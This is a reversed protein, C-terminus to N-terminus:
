EVLRLVKVMTGGTKSPAGVGSAFGLFRAKVPDAETAQEEVFVKVFNNFKIMGKGPKRYEDPDFVSIKIIRPSANDPYIPSKVVRVVPDWYADPDRRILERIGTYTPGEMDGNETEYERELEIRSMNCNCLNARYADAGNEKNSQWRCERSRGGDIPMVWPFFFSDVPADSPDETDESAKITFPRGYDRPYDANMEYAFDSGYGTADASGVRAYHDLTPANPDYAWSEDADWIRNGDDDDRDHWRDPVALPKVCVAESGGITAEAAAVTAVPVTDIGLLRAFYTTGARAVRVRVKASDRIVEVQVEEARLHGQRVIHATAQELARDRAPGPAQSIDFDIFASAGALAAADAARQLETRVNFLMGVDIGLAAMSLLAATSLATLVLTSGREDQLARRAKEHLAIM